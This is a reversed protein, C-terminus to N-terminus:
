AKTPPTGLGQEGVLLKGTKRDTSVFRQLDFFSVFCAILDRNQESIYVNTAAPCDPDKKMLSSPYTDVWSPYRSLKGRLPGLGQPNNSVWAFIDEYVDMLHPSDREVPFLVDAKAKSGLAVPVTASTWEKMFVPADYNIGTGPLPYNSIRHEWWRDLMNNFRGGPVVLLDPRAILTRRGVLEKLVDLSTYSTPRITEYYWSNAGVQNYTSPTNTEPYGTGSATTHRVWGTTGTPDLQWRNRYEYYLAPSYQVPLIGPAAWALFEKYFRGPQYFENHHTEGLPLGCVIPLFWEEYFNRAGAVSDLSIAPDEYPNGGGASNVMWRWSLQRVFYNIPVILGQFPDQSCAIMACEGKVWNTWWAAGWPIPNKDFWVTYTNAYQRPSPTAEGSWPLDSFAMAQMNSTGRKYMNMTTCFAFAHLITALYHAVCMKLVNQTVYEAMGWHKNIWKMIFSHITDIYGPNESDLNLYATDSILSIDLSLKRLYYDSWGCLIRSSASNRGFWNSHYRAVTAGDLAANLCPIGFFMDLSKNTRRNHLCSSQFGPGFGGTAVEREGNDLHIVIEMSDDKGKTDEPPKVDAPVDSKPVEAKPGSPDNRKKEDKPM